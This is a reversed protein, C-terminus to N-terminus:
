PAPLRRTVAAGRASTSGAKLWSPLVIIQVLWRPRSPRLWIQAASKTIGSSGAGVFGGIPERSLRYREGIPAPPNSCGGRIGLSVGTQSEPPASDPASGPSEAGSGGGSGRGAPSASRASGSRPSASGPKASWGAAPSPEPVASPGTVGGASGVRSSVPEVSSASRATTTAAHALRGPGIRAPMTAMTRSACRPHSRSGISALRDFPRM